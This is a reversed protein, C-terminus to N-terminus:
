TEIRFSLEGVVCPIMLISNVDVVGQVYRSNVAIVRKWESMYLASPVRDVSCSTKWVFIEEYCKLGLGEPQNLCELYHALDSIVPNFCSLLAWWIIFFRFLL